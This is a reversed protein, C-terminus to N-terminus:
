VTLCISNKKYFKGTLAPRKNLKQNARQLNREAFLKERNLPSGLTLLIDDEYDERLCKTSLPKIKINMNHSVSSAVIRSSLTPTASRIKTQGKTRQAAKNLIRWSCNELRRKQLACSEDLSATKSDKYIKMVEELTETGILISGGFSEPVSKVTTFHANRNSQSLYRLDYGPPLSEGWYLHELTLDSTICFAYMSKGTYLRFTRFDEDFYVM